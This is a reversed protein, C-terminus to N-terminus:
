FSLQNKVCSAELTFLRKLKGKAKGLAKAKNPDFNLSSNQPEDLLLRTSGVRQCLSLALTATPWPTPAANKQTSKKHQQLFLVEGTPALVWM